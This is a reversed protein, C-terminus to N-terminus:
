RIPVQIEGSGFWVDNRRILLEHVAGPVSFISESKEGTNWLYEIAGPPAILLVSGDRQKVIDVQPRNLRFPLSDIYARHTQFGGPFRMDWVTKGLADFLQVESGNVNDGWCVLQSGDSTIQYSGRATCSVTDPYTIASILEAKKDPVNLKYKEASPRSPSLHLGNNFYLLTDNKLSAHHQHSLMRQSVPPFDSRSGGFKWFAKNEKKSLNIIQNCNRVSILLGTDGAFSISNAHSLNIVSTDTRYAPAVDEPLLIDKLSWEKLLQHNKDLQQIVCGGCNINTKENYNRGSRDKMGSTTGSFNENCMLYDTGDKDAIMDHPDTTRGNCRISDTILMNSDIVYWAGINTGWFFYRLSGKRHPKFDILAGKISESGYDRKFSKYLVLKFNMDLVILAGYHSAKPTIQYPAVFIFQNTDAVKQGSVNVKLFDEPLLVDQARIQNVYFCFLYLTFLFTYM